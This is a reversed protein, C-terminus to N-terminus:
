CRVETYLCEFKIEMAPVSLVPMDYTTLVRVDGLTVTHHNLDNLFRTMICRVELIPYITIVLFETITKLTM